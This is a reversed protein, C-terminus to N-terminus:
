LSLGRKILPSKKRMLFLAIRLKIIQGDTNPPPFQINRTDAFKDILPFHNRAVLPKIIAQIISLITLMTKRLTVM